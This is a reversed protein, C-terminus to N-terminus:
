GLDQVSMMELARLKKRKKRCIVYILIFVATPINYVLLSLISTLIIALFPPSYESIGNLLYSESTTYIAVIAGGVVIILSVSLTIMPLILGAWKGERKSLFVQFVILGGIVGIGLVLSIIIVPWDFGVLAVGLM